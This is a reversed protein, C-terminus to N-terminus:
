MQLRDASKYASGLEVLDQISGGQIEPASGLLMGTGRATSSRADPAPKVPVAAGSKMNVHRTRDHLPHETAKIGGM